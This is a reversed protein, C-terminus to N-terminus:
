KVLGLQSFTMYTYIIGNQYINALTAPLKLPSSRKLSSKLIPQTIIRAVDHDIKKPESILNDELEFFELKRKKESSTFFNLISSTVSALDSKKKTIKFTLHNEKEEKKPSNDTITENEDLDDGLNNNSIRAQVLSDPAASRLRFIMKTLEYRQFESEVPLQNACM